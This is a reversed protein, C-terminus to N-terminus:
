TELMKKGAFGVDNKWLSAFPFIFFHLFSFMNQSALNGRPFGLNTRKTQADWIYAYLCSLDADWFVVGILNVFRTYLTLIGHASAIEDMHFILRNNKPVQHIHMHIFRM